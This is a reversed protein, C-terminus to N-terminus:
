LLGLGHFFEKVPEMDADTLTYYPARRWRGALGFLELMAHIGADFGGPLTKLMDFMPMDYKHIIATAARLDKAQIAAWYQRAIEPKFRMYTSLYGHCGFPHMNMHNVKQGGAYIACQESFELCLRRAVDGCMDDKIALINDSKSLALKITDICMDAGRPMFVNTVIMLPMVDAVAVYHDALTEVTGSNGWDPPMAMYMDAGVDKCYKAFKVARATSHFRDAAVVMSRGAVHEVTVRTVEAIEEDSMCLYHSDGATLLIVKEKNAISFDLMNRLGDYDIEGDELFPTSISGSPGTFCEMAYQKDM